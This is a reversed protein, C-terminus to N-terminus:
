TLKVDIVYSVDKVPLMAHNACMVHVIVLYVIIVLMMVDIVVMVHYMVAIVVMVNLMVTIVLIAVLMVVIVHSVPDVNQKVHRAVIVDVMVLIVHLM